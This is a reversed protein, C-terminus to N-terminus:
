TQLNTGVMDYTPSVSFHQQTQPLQAESPRQTWLLQGDAAEPAPMGDAHM